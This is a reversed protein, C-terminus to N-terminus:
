KAEPDQPNEPAPATGAGFTVGQIRTDRAIKFTSSFEM